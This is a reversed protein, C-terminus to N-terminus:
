LPGPLSSSQGPPPRFTPDTPPSLV